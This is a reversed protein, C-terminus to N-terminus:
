RKLGLWTGTPAPNCHYPIGRFPGDMFVRVHTGDPRFIYLFRPPGDPVDDEPPQGVTSGSVNDGDYTRCAAGALLLAKKRTVRM